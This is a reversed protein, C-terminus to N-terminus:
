VVRSGPAWMSMAIEASWLAINNNNSGRDSLIVTCALIDGEYLSSIDIGSLTMTSLKTRVTAGPVVTTTQATSLTVIATDAETRALTVLGGAPDAVTTGAVQLPLASIKVEMSVPDGTGGVAMYKLVLSAPLATNM